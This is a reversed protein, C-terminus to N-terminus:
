KLEWTPRNMFVSIIFLDMVLIKDEIYKIKITDALPNKSLIPLVLEGQEGYQKFTQLTDELVFYEGNLYGELPLLEKDSCYLKLGTNYNPKFNCFLFLFLLMILLKKM